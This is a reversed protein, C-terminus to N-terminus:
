SLRLECLVPFVGGAGDGTLWHPRLVRLLSLLPFEEIAMRGRTESIVSGASFGITFTTKATGPLQAAVWRNMECLECLPTLPLVALCSAPLQTYSRPGEMGVQASEFPHGTPSLNRRENALVPAAQRRVGLKERGRRSM